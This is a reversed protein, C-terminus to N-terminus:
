KAEFSQGVDGHYSSVTILPGFDPSVNVASSEIILKRHDLIELQLQQLIATSAREREGETGKAINKPLYPM